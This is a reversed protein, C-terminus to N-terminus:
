EQRDCFYIGCRIEDTSPYEQPFVRTDVRFRLVACLFEKARKKSISTLIVGKCIGLHNVFNRNAIAQAIVM